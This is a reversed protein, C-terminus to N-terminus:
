RSTLLMSGASNTTCNGERAVKSPARNICGLWVLEVGRFGEPFGWSQLAVCIMSSSVYDGYPGIVALRSGRRIPLAKDLNKLLTMSQRAADLAVEAFAATGRDAPTIAPFKQGDYKDFLGARFQLTLLRTLALDVLTHPLSGNRLMQPLVDHYYNNSGGASELDTGAELALRVAAAPSDVFHHGNVDHGTGTNIFRVTDSDGVVYGDFSWNGRLMKTQM